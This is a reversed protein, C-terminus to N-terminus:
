KSSGPVRRLRSGVANQNFPSDRYRSGGARLKLPISTRIRLPHGRELTIESGIM